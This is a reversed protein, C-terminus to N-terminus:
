LPVFGRQNTALAYLPAPEQGSVVANLRAGLGALRARQRPDGTFVIRRLGARLCGLALGARAEALVTLPHGLERELAALVAPGFIGAPMVLEAEVGMGLALRLAAEAEARGHVLVALRRM